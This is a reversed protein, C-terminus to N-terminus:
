VNVDDLIAERNDRYWEITREIGEEFDTSATWDFEKKARSVDLCRRPQGDPKSTDWEVEGDFGMKETIVAVLREISIEEGTGINVPDPKEYKVTAEIIAEAADAVYLFERTPDGTGWATISDEGQRMARDTKRILAPIVHSTELDFDDGPGYLNAPLLYIGNFGYQDRYASNQVLPIKKAIGYPAHTEEPYGDWLTEEDFPVPTHKPYACVSGVAVFKDIDCLRGAEILELAMKTNDYFIEGAYESMVGIGGVTGALHVVLDPDVEDYLRDVAERRRLDYDESRPVVVDSCGRSQLEDVVNSGLFGAGGTVIIRKDTIDM